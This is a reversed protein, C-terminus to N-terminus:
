GDLNEVIMTSIVTPYSRFECGWQFDNSIGLAANVPYPTRPRPNQAILRYLLATASYVGGIMHMRSRVLGINRFPSHTERTSFEDTLEPPGIHQGTITM